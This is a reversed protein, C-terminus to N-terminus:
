NHHAWSAIAAATAVLGYLAAIGGFIWGLTANSGTKSSEGGTIRSELAALRDKVDSIKDDTNTKNLEIRSETTQGLTKLNDELAGILKALNAESKDASKANSADREAVAQKAANFAKETNQDNQTFRDNITDKLVKVTETVAVFKELYLSKNGVIEAELVERLAQIAKEVDTPVRVLNEQATDVAKEIGNIRVTIEGRLTSISRDAISQMLAQPDTVSRLAVVLKRGLDSPNIIDDHEEGM